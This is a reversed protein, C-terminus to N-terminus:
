SRRRSEWLVSPRKGVFLAVAAFPLTLLFARYGLVALQIPAWGEQGIAEIATTRVGTLGAVMEVVGFVALSGAVFAAKRIWRVGRAAVVMSLPVILFSANGLLAAIRGGSNTAGWWLAFLGFSLGAGAGVFLLRDRM